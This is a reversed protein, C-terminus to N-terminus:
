QMGRASRRDGHRVAVEKLSARADEQLYASHSQFEREQERVVLSWGFSEQAKCAWMSMSSVIASRTHLARGFTLLNGIVSAVGRGVEAVEVWRRLWSVCGLESWATEKRLHRRSAQDSFPRFRQLCSAQNIGSSSQPISISGSSLYNVGKKLGAVPQM